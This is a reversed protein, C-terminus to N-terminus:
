EGVLRLCESESLDWQKCERLASRSLTASRPLIAGAAAERIEVAAPNSSGSAAQQAVVNTLVASSNDKNAQAQLAAARANAVGGTAANSLAEILQIPLRAGALVESPKDVEVKTLSGEQFDLATKRTVFLSRRIEVQFIPEGNAFEYSSLEVTEGNKIVNVNLQAARRYYVGAQLKQPLAYAYSEEPQVRRALSGRSCGSSWTEPRVEVEVCIKYKSLLKNVARARSFDFPDFEYVAFPEEAPAGRFRSYLKAVELLIDGTRDTLTADVQDLFGEKTFQVTIKDDSLGSLALGTELALRSDRVVVTSVAVKPSSSNGSLQVRLLHKPLYYVGGKQAYGYSSSKAAPYSNVASCGM